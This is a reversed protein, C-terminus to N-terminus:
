DGDKYGWLKRLHALVKGVEHWMVSLIDITQKIRPDEKIPQPPALQSVLMKLYNNELYAPNLSYKRKDMPHADKDTNKIRILIPVKEERVFVKENKYLTYLITETIKERFEMDKDWRAREKSNLSIGWEVFSPLKCILLEHIDRASYMKKPDKFYLYVMLQEIVRVCNAGQYVAKQIENHLYSWEDGDNVSPCGIGSDLMYQQWVKKSAYVFNKGEKKICVIHGLEALKNLASSVSSSLVNTHGEQRLTAAIDDSTRTKSWNEVANYVLDQLSM